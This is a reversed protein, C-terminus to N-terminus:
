RKPSEPLGSKLVSPSTSWTPSTAPLVGPVGTPHHPGRGTKFMFTAAKRSQISWQTRPSSHSFAQPGASSEVDLVTNCHSLKIFEM